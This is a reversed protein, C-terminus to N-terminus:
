FVMLCDHLLKVVYQTYMTCLASTIVTCYICIYEYLTHLNRSHSYTMDDRKSV